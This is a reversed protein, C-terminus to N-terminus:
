HREGLLSSTLNKEDALVRGESGWYGTCESLFTMGTLGSFALKKLFERRNRYVSEPTALSDAIEWGKTIKLHAKNEEGKFKLSLYYIYGLDTFKIRL